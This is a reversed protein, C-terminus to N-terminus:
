PPAAPGPRSARPRLWSPIGPRGVFIRDRPIALRHEVSEATYSSNVLIAGARAAHARVLAGYDRRIEGSVHEPRSLFDLDHITIVQAAARTPMLLPHLSHVVDPRTGSLWEVPPWELRHWALNLTRVPVRCDAVGLSLAAFPSRDIRDKWSSSFVTLRLGPHESRALALVLQHVYEGVGTRARLAPRYDLLVHM